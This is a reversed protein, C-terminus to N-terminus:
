KTLKLVVMKSENDQPIVPEGFSKIFTSEWADTRLNEIFITFSNSNEKQFNFQNFVKKSFLEEEDEQVSTDESLENIANGVKELADQLTQFDEKKGGKDPHLIRTMRRWNKLVTSMKPMEEIDENFGLIILYKKM